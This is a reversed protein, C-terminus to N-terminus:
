SGKILLQQLAPLNNLPLCLTSLLMWWVAVVLRQHPLVLSAGSEQPLLLHRIPVRRGFSFPFSCRSVPTLELPPPFDGALAPCM